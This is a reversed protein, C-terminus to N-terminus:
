EWDIGKTVDPFDETWDDILRALFRYFEDEGIEQEYDPYNAGKYNWAEIWVYRIFHTFVEESQGVYELLEKIMDAFYTYGEDKKVENMTWSDLMKYNIPFKKM